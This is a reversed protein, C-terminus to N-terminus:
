FEGSMNVADSAATQGRAHHSAGEAICRERPAKERCRSTRNNLVLALAPALSPSQALTLDIIIPPM